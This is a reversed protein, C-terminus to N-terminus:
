EQPDRAAEVGLAVLLRPLAIAAISSVLWVVLAGWAWASLGSIWLARGFWSAIVLAILTAGLGTLGVLYRAREVTVRALWPTVLGQVIAYIIVTTVFGLVRVRFGDVAIAAALLGLAASGLYVGIMVALRAM